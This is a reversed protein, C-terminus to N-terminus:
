YYPLNNKKIYDILEQNQEDLFPKTRIFECIEGQWVGRELLEKTFTFFHDNTIKRDSIYIVVQESFGGTYYTEMFHKFESKSLRHKAYIYLPLTYTRQPAEKFTLWDLPKPSNVLHKDLPELGTLYIDTMKKM